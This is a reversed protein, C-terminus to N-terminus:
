VVLACADRGEGEEKEAGRYQSAFALGGQKENKVAWAAFNGSWRNSNLRFCTRDEGRARIKLKNGAKRRVPREDRDKRVQKKKKSFATRRCPPKKAVGSKERPQGTEKEQLRKEKKNLPKTVGLM